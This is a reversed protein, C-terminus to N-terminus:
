HLFIAFCELSYDFRRSSIVQLRAFGAPALTTDSTVNQLGVILCMYDFEISTGKIKLGEVTSGQSVLHIKMGLRTELHRALAQCVTEANNRAAELVQADPPAAYQDYFRKLADNYRLDSHWSFCVSTKTICTYICINCTFGPYM